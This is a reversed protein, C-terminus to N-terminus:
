LFAERVTACLDYQGIIVPRGLRRRFEDLSMDDLFLGEHNLCNPPLVAVDFERRAAEAAALLDAGTLLGSVTVMEGWFRNVVPLLKLNLDLERLYGVLTRKLWEAAALGTLFAVRIDTSIGSLFRRGRNFDVTARRIMGVGNEWQEMDEYHCLPPIRREALLYYEDSPWAFRTGWESLSQQQFDEVVAITERAEQATPRRLRPLHERYRTLGVPVVALTALEPQLGALDEMTRHLSSGDNLDPCIVAQTHLRIGRRTLWELQPLIPQLKRNGLMRRRLEDDTTHVSVYLPSLRQEVIRNLDAQNVNSLTIYNGHTFSLRYDEDRVNLSRRMRRPQQRVFCFVCNCRCRRVEEDEFTLGLAGPYLNDFRFSQEAGGADEFTLEVLDDSALFQFDLTDRVERGNVTVLQHGARVHGYLPSNPNVSVVRM